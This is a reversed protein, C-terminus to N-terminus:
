GPRPGGTEPLAAKGAALDAALRRVFELAMLAMALPFTALLWWERVVMTRFIKTDLAYAEYAVRAGYYFLTACVAFGVINMALDVRRAVAGALSSVVLDVRVHQGLHLVWPASLFTAALIAYEAAEIMWVLNAIGFNRTVVDASIGLAIAAILLAALAGCGNVVIRHIRGLLRM